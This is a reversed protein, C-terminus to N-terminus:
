KSSSPGHGLDHGPRDILLDVLHPHRVLAPAVAVPHAHRVLQDLPGPAVRRPRPRLRCPPPEPWSRPTAAEIDSPRLTVAMWALAQPDDHRLIRDAIFRGDREVDLEALDVNWFLHGLRRPVRRPRAIRRATPLVCRGIDSAVALWEPSGWRVSWVTVDRVRGEVVQEVRQEVYGRAALERLARAATTPRVGAARAAARASDLGLPRRSLAALVMATERSLGPVRRVAGWRRRLEDVAEAGFRLRGHADSTYRSRAPAPRAICGGRPCASRAPWRAAPSRATWITM